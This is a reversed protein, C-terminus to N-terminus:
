APVARSDNYARVFEPRNPHNLVQRIALIEGIHFWYHYTVRRLANGILRPPSGPLRELLDAPALRDLQPDAAKSIAKWAALMDRLPPTTAPGGSAVIENLEPRPTQGTLRTLWYRQEHWALHGVIWSISNMPGVRTVGDAEPVGRLARLWESRTFRLQEVIPLVM